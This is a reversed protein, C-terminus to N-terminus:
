KFIIYILLLFLFPLAILFALLLFNWILKLSLIVISIFSIKEKCVIYKYMEQDVSFFM